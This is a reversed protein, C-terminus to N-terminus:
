IEVVVPRYPGDKREGPYGRPNCVVRTSGMHYDCPMHTHGHIWIKPQLDLIVDDVSCLFFRNCVDGAYKKHVSLQSPMHHTIIVDTDKPVDYRLFEVADENREYVAPKFDNVMRFDNMLPEYRFSKPDEKFWLSCAAFKKGGVEFIERELFHFNEHLADLERFRADGTSFDTGYYDHNGAIYLVCPYNSCLIDLYQKAQLWWHFEGVDGALVLVETEEEPILATLFDTGHDKDFTLHIDSIIEIQM